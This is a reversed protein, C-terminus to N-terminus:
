CNWSFRKSEEDIKKYASEIENIDNSQISKMRGMLFYIRNVNGWTIKEKRSIYWEEIIKIEYPKIYTTTKAYSDYTGKAIEIGSLYYVCELFLEDDETAPSLALIDKVKSKLSNLHCYFWHNVKIENTDKKQIYFNSQDLQCFSGISNFLFIIAIFIRM